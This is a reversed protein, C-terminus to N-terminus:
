TNVPALAVGDETSTQAEWDIIRRLIMKDSANGSCQCSLAPNTGNAATAWVVATTGQCLVEQQDRKPQHTVIILSNCATPTAITTTAAHKTNTYPAGDNTAVTNNYAIVRQKIAKQNATACGCTTQTTVGNSATAFTTNTAIGQCLAQQTDRRPQVTTVQL